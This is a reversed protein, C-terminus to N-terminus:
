SSTSLISTLAQAYAQIAHCHRPILQTLKDKTTQKPGIEITLPYSKFNSYSFDIVEGHTLYDHASQKQIPIHAWYGYTKALTKFTMKHKSAKKTYGPPWLIMKKGSHIALVGQPRYNLLLQKLAQTEPAMHALSFDRRLTRNIDLGNANFRSNRYLGDPNAIPQLAVEFNRDESSALLEFVRQGFEVTSPEDGHLGSILLLRIPSIPLLSNAM